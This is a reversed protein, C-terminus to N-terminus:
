RGYRALHAQIQKGVDRDNRYRQLLDLAVPDDKWRRLYSLARQKQRVDRGALMNRLMLIAERSKIASLVGLAQEKVYKDTDYRAVRGVQKEAKTIENREVGRLAHRRINASSHRLGQTYVVEYGSFKVQGALDIGARVVQEDGARLASLCVTGPNFGKFYGLARIAQVRTETSRSHMGVSSLARFAKEEENFSRLTRIAQIVRAQEAHQLDELAAAMKPDMPKPPTVKAPEPPAPKPEPPKPAPQPEPKPAPQPEPKPEPKPAPKPEAERRPKPKPVPPPITTTTTTTTTPPAEHVLETPDEQGDSEWEELADRILIAAGIGIGGLLLAVVVLIFVVEKAGFSRADQSSATM